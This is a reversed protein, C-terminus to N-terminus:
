QNAPTSTPILFRLQDVILIGICAAKGNFDSASAVGHGVSHRSLTAPVGPAFGAFYVDQLFRNFLDPLLWSHDHTEGDLHRVATNSLNKATPRVSSGLVEHISRLLGEISPYLIATASVHDDAAFRDLAHNLLPLHPAFLAAESWRSRLAPVMNKVAAVIEPLYGDVDIGSRAAAVMQRVLRKPLSVFPFWSEHFLRRWESESLKFVSQNLLYAYYSGLIKELDYERAHAEASLPSVDFFLGKRWGSSFICVVAADPPASVGEFRVSDIDVIDDEGIPSM